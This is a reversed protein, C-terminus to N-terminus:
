QERVSIICGGHVGIRAKEKCEPCRSLIFKVTTSKRKPVQFLCLLGCSPCILECDRIEAKELPM